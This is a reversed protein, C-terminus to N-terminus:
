EYGEPSHYVGIYYLISPSLCVNICVIDNGLLASESGFPRTSKLARYPLASTISFAGRHPFEITMCSAQTVVGPDGEMWLNSNFDIVTNRNPILARFGHINRRWYPSLEGKFIRTTYPGWVEWPVVEGLHVYNRLRDVLLFLDVQIASPAVANFRFALLHFTPCIFTISNSQAMSGGAAAHSTPSFCSVFQFDQFHDPFPLQFQTRPATRRSSGPLQYLEFAIQSRYSQKQGVLLETESLLIGCWGGLVPNM